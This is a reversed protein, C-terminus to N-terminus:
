CHSQNDLPFKFKGMEEYGKQALMNKCFCHFQGNRKTVDKLNKSYDINADAAEIQDQCLIDPIQAEAINGVQELNYVLYFCVGLMCLIFMIYIIIRILRSSQAVGFNEWILM